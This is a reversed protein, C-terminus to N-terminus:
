KVWLSFTSATGAAGCGGQGPAGSGTCWGSSAYAASSNTLIRYGSGNFDSIGNETGTGTRMSQTLAEDSYTKACAGVSATKHGYVCQGSAYWTGQYGAVSRIVYVAKPVANIFGDAYKWTAAYTPAPQAPLNYSGVANYWGAVAINATAQMLMTWGGNSMDCYVNTAAQGAPQIAYVGDGTAGTYEYAGTGSRYALCSAAYTGDAWARYSGYNKVGTIAQINLSYRQSGTVAKYTATVDFTFAGGASPTGTLVGSTGDLSLGAPLAGNARWAVGTGTFQADGTVRLLTNFNAGAYVQHVRGDPLAYAALSVSIPVDVKKGQIPVVLYYDAAQASLTCLGLLGALILNKMPEYSM